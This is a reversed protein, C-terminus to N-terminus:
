HVFDVFHYSFYSTFSMSHVVISSTRIHYIMVVYIALVGTTSWLLGIMVLSIMMSRTQSRMVGSQLCSVSLPSISSWNPISLLVFIQIHTWSMSTSDFMANKFNGVILGGILNAKVVIKVVVCCDEQKGSQTIHREMLNTWVQM